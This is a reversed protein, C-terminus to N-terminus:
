KIDHVKKGETIIFLKLFDTLKEKLDKFEVNERSGALTVSKKSSSAWPFIRSRGVPTVLCIIQM